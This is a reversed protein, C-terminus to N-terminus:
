AWAAVLDEPGLHALGPVTCGSRSVALMPTDDDAGPLQARHRVLVAADRPDFPRREHWKVSGVALVTGAVPQRDAGVLDIEPDNSRTWFGGWVAWDDVLHSGAGRMLAERVVPEVARGRWSTWGLRIDSLVRDGRAREVDPIRRELFALFFRLYPDEIRYRTQRSPVTSLPLEAAVLRKDSLLTLARHLSAQPLGSARALATFTREGSGIAGLATRAQASAPLEAALSREGSVLLASTPTALADTLFGDWSQGPEWELCVLPLGGTVLWADITETPTLALMEGVEAPSLPPIVLETARQHFPRGYDNLREMMSLDSGIGVLLVPKRRLERDFVKQLTGEFAPDSVTLYPLEDLVVVSPRDDPLAAALLRLTAEWGKPHTGEFLQAGPLSSRVVEAAFLAVEDDLTRTSATFFVYPVGVRELFEEILRSKGVRRRGRVLLARGASDAGPRGVQSLLKELLALQRARGVFM